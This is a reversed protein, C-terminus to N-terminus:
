VRSKSFPYDSRQSFISIVSNRVLHPGVDSAPMQFIMALVTSCQHLRLLKTDCCGKALNFDHKNQEGIHCLCFTM